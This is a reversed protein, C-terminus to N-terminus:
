VIILNILRLVVHTLLSIIVFFLPTKADPFRMVGYILAAPFFLIAAIGWIPQGSQFALVAIWVIGAIGAITVLTVLSVILTLM